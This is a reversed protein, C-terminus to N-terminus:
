EIDASIIYKVDTEFPEEGIEWGSATTEIYFYKDGEYEFYKGEDYGDVKVGVAMHGSMYWLFIVDYDM